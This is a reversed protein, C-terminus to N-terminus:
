RMLYNGKQDFDEVAVLSAPHQTLKDLIAYPLTFDKVGALATEILEEKSKISAALLKTDSGKLISTLQKALLIGDGLLRTARNIYVAIYVAGIEKAILAQAPSFIATICIPFKTVLKTAFKFGIETPPIKVVLKEGLIDYAANAEQQMAALNTSKVQYFVEAVPYEGLMQLVKAPPDPNKYLLTPNTTIGTVWGTELANEIETYESSDIYFAM